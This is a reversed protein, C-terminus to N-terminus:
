EARVFAAYEAQRPNAVFLTSGDTFTYRVSSDYSEPCSKEVSVAEGEVRQLFASLSDWDIARGYGGKAYPIREFMREFCKAITATTNLM